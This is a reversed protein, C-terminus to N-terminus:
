EAPSGCLHSEDVKTALFLAKHFVQNLVEVFNSKGSGNPGILINLSGNTEAVDFTIDPNTALNNRHAFSLANSIGISKIKM